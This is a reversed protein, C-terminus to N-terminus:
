VLEFTLFLRGHWLSVATTQDQIIMLDTASPVPRLGKIRTSMAKGILRAGMSSVVQRQAESGYLDIAANVRGLLLTKTPRVQLQASQIVAFPYDTNEDPLFDYTKYGLERSISFLFDYVVQGPDRM